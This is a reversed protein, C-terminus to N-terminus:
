CGRQFQEYAILHTRMWLASRRKSAIKNGEHNEVRREKTKKDIVTAIEHCTALTLQLTSHGRGIQKAFILICFMADITACGGRGM